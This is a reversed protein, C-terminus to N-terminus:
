IRGVEFYSIRQKPMVEFPSHASCHLAHRARIIHHNTQQMVSNRPDDKALTICFSQKQDRTALHAQYLLEAFIDARNPDCLPSHLMLYQFHQKEEPLLIHGTIGAYLNYFPRLLKLLLSYKTVITQKFTKQNWLGFIAVLENDLYLLKFDALQMGRWHPHDGQALENFNYVPLFNYFQKMSEIFANVEDIQSADLKKLSFNLRQLPKAVKSVTYTAIEDYEYPTINTARPNHLVNRAVQNDELVVSQFIQDHPFYSRVFAMMLSIIKKGKFNRNLRLDAVYPIEHIQHNVYVRKVGFNVMGVIQDPQDKLCFLKVDPRTYQTRSANFYSPKREFSLVMGNSPMTEQMLHVLQIDDQDTANRIFFEPFQENEYIALEQWM